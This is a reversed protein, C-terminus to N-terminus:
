RLSIMNNNVEQIIRTMTHSNPILIVSEYVLSLSLYRYILNQWAIQQTNQVVLKLIGGENMQM